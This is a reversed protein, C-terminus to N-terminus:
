LLTEQHSPCSVCCRDHVDAPPCVCVGHFTECNPCRPDHSRHRDHWQAPTFPGHCVACFPTEAQAPCDPCNRYAGTDLWSVHGAPCVAVFVAIM